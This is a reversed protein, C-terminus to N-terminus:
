LRDIIQQMTLHDEQVEKRHGYREVKTPQLRYGEVVFPRPSESKKTFRMAQAINSSNLTEIDFMNGSAHEIQKPARRVLDSSNMPVNKSINVDARVGFEERAYPPSFTHHLGWMAREGQIPIEGPVRPNRAGKGFGPSKRVTAYGEMVRPSGRAYGFEGRPINVYHSSVNANIGGSGRPLSAAVRFNEHYQQM